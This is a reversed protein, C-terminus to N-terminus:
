GLNVSSDVMEIKCERMKEKGEVGAQRYAPPLLFTPTTM